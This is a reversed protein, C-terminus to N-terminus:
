KKRAKRIVNVNNGIVWAYLGCLFVLAYVHTYDQWIWLLTIFAGKAAILVVEHGFKDFLRKLVPNAERGIGTRLAYHTTAIDALQLIILFYLM